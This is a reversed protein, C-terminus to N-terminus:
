LFPDDFWAEFCRNCLTWNRFRVVQDLAERPDLNELSAVLEEYERELEEASNELDLVPASPDAVAQVRVEFFEGMGEKLEGLCRDCLRRSSDNM